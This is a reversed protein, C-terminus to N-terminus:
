IKVVQTNDLTCPFEKIYIAQFNKVDDVQVFLTSKVTLIGLMKQTDLRGMSFKIAEQLGEDTLKIRDGKKLITAIM